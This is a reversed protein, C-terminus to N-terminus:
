GAHDGSCVGMFQTKFKIIFVKKGNVYIDARGAYDNSVDGKAYIVRKPFKNEFWSILLKKRINYHKLTERKHMRFIIIIKSDEDLKQNAAFGDLAALLTDCSTPGIQEINSEDDVDQNSIPSTNKVQSFATIQSAFLVLAIIICKKFINKKCIKPETSM